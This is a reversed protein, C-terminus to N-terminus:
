NTNVFFIPVINTTLFYFDIFNLLKIRFLINACILKM